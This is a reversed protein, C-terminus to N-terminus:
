YLEEMVKLFHVHSPDVHLDISFQISAISVLLEKFQQYIQSIIQQNLNWNYSTWLTAAIIVFHYLDHYKM